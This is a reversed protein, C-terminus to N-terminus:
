QVYDLSRLTRLEERTPLREGPTFQQALTQHM